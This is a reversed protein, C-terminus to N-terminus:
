RHGAGPATKRGGCVSGHRHLRRSGTSHNPSGSESTMQISHIRMQHAINKLVTSIISQMHIGEKMCILVLVQKTADSPLQAQLQDYPYVTLKEQYFFRGSGKGSRSLFRTM